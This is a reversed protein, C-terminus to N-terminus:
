QGALTRDEPSLPFGTGLSGDVGNWWEAIKAAAKEFERPPATASYGELPVGRKRLVAEAASREVLKPSALRAIARGVATGPHPALIPDFAIEAAETMYLTAAPAAPFFAVTGSLSRAEARVGGSVVACRMKKEGVLARFAPEELYKRLSPEFLKKMRAFDTANWAECYGRATAEARAAPSAPRAATPAPRAAAFLSVVLFSIV